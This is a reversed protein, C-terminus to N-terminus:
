QHHDPLHALPLYTNKNTNNPNRTPGHLRLAELRHSTHHRSSMKHQNNTESHTRPRARTLMVRLHDRRRHITTAWRTPVSTSLTHSISSPIGGKITASWAELHNSSHAGRKTTSCRVDDPCEKQCSGEVQDPTRFDCTVHYQQANMSGRVRSVSHLVGMSTTFRDMCTMCTCTEERIFMGTRESSCVNVHRVDLSRASTIDRKPAANRRQSSFSPFFGLARGGLYM